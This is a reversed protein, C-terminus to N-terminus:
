VDDRILELGVAHLLGNLDAYARDFNAEMAELTAEKRHLQHEYALYLHGIEVQSKQIGIGMRRQGREDVLQAQLTFERRMDPYKDAGLGLAAEGRQQLWSEAAEKGDECEVWMNARFERQLVQPTSQEDSRVASLLAHECTVLYDRIAKLDEDTQVLNRLDTVLGSPTIEIRGSGNYVSITLKLDGFSTGGLSQMDTLLM